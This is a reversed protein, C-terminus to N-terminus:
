LAIGERAIWAELKKSAERSLHGDLALYHKLITTIGALSHGTIDAIEPLTCGARALWTVATDRLDAFHFELPEDPTGGLLSPVKQAALRRVEAFRHRFDTEEWATGTRECVVVAAPVVRFARRRADAAQLRAVLQPTGWAKVVAGRKQQRFAIPEGEELRDAISRNTGPGNVLARIDGQRQGTLLALYCADGISPLGLADAAEVLARFEEDTAIRIRPPPTPLNLRHCPNVKLRWDAATRAWSYAASMVMVVARAMSLGRVRVLYEFFAKVEPAELVSAPVSAIAEPERDGALYSRSSRARGEALRRPKFRVADAANEYGSQTKPALRRFDTSALYDALLDELTRRVPKPAQPRQAGAAAVAANIAQAAAIAAEFPLWAGADDRLDRGTWGRRRLKPGPIWRPRGDRWQFYPCDISLKPM